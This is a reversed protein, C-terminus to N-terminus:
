STDTSTGTITWTYEAPTADYNLAADVARVYFTHSGSSLGSYSKPSACASFISTDMRCEFSVDSISDGSFGFTFTASADSTSSSPKQVISTEQATTDLIISSSYQVGINGTFDKYKVKVTKYGDGSQFYITKSTSYSEFQETDLTGDVSIQM